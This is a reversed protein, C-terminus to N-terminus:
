AIDKLKTIGKESRMIGLVAQKATEDKLQSIGEILTERASRLERRADALTGSPQHYRFEFHCWSTCEVFNPVMEKLRQWAKLEEDLRRVRKLADPIDVPNRQLESRKTVGYFTVQKLEETAQTMRSYSTAGPNLCIIVVNNPSLGVARGSNKRNRLIDILRPAFIEIRKQQHSLQAGKEDRIQLLQKDARVCFFIWQRGVHFWKEDVKSKPWNGKGFEEAFILKAEKESICVLTDKENRPIRIRLPEWGPVSFLCALNSKGIGPPGIIVPHYHRQIQTCTKDETSAKM